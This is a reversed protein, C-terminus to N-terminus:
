FHTILNYTSNTIINIFLINGRWIQCTQEAGVGTSIVASIVFIWKWRFHELLSDLKEELKNIWKEDKERERQYRRSDDKNCHSNVKIEREEREKVQWWQM